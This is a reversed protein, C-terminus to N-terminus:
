IHIKSYNSFASTQTKKLLNATGGNPSWPALLSEDEISIKNSYLPILEFKNIQIVAQHHFM